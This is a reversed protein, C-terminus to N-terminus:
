YTYARPLLSDGVCSDRRNWALGADFTSGPQGNHELERREANVARVNPGDATAKAPRAVAARTPGRNGRALYTCIGLFGCNLRCNGRLRSFSVCAASRVTRKTKPLKRERAERRNEVCEFDEVCGRLVHAANCPLIERLFSHSAIPDNTPRREPVGLVRPHVDSTLALLIKRWDIVDPVFPLPTITV